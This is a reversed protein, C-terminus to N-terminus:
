GICKSFSSFAHETYKKLYSFQRIYSSELRVRRWSVTPSRGRRWSVQLSGGRRWGVQNSRAGRCNMIDGHGTNWILWAGRPQRWTLCETRQSYPQKWFAPDLFVVLLDPLLPLRFYEGICWHLLCQHFFLLSSSSSAFSFPSFSRWSFTSLWRQPDKSRLCLFTQHQRHPAMQCSSALPLTPLIHGICDRPGSLRCEMTVLMWKVGNHSQNLIYVCLCVRVCEQTLCLPNSNRETLSLSM